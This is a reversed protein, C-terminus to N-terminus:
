LLTVLSRICYIDFPQVSYHVDSPLGNAFDGRAGSHLASASEVLHFACLEMQIQEDRAVVNEGAARELFHARRLEVELVQM